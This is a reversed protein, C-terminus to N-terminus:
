NPQFVVAFGYAFIYDLIWIAFIRELVAIATLFHDDRQLTEIYLGIDDCGEELRPAAYFTM